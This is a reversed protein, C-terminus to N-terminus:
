DPNEEGGKLFDERSMSNEELRVRGMMEAKFGNRYPLVHWVELYNGDESIAFEFNKSHMM